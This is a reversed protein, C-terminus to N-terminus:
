PADTELMLQMLTEAAAAARRRADGEGTADGAEWTFSAAGFANRAWARLTPLGPNHNESWRPSAPGLRADLRQRWAAQFEALGPDRWEREAYVTDEWTAHFDIMVRLPSQAAWRRVAGGVARTEPELFPGWDRNLDTGRANARWHGLHVGDPNVLPVLVLGYRARFRRALEDQDLIREIFGHFAHAGPLEPPHQRGVLLVWGARDFPGGSWALLPRGLESEGLVERELGAPGAWQATLDLTDGGSWLPNAAIWQPGQSLDLTILLEGSEEDVQWGAPALPAWDIGDTSIWPSYRHRGHLYRQRVQLTRWRDSDIRWAYWPSPNIPAFEPAITTVLGESGITCAHLRAGEFAATVQLGDGACIQFADDRPEPSTCAALM